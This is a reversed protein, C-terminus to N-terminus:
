LRHAEQWIRNLLAWFVLGLFGVAAVYGIVVLWDRPLLSPLFLAALVAAILAVDLIKM